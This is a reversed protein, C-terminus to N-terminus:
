PRVAVQIQNGMYGMSFDHVVEATFDDSESPGWLKIQLPQGNLRVSARYTAFPIGTIVLGEGTSRVTKVFTEGSTTNVLTVEAGSLDTFDAIANNLVFVGANGYPQEESSEVLTATFNRLTDANGPFTANDEAVLDINRQQGGDTSVRYANAAYEGPPLNDTSITYRGDADTIATQKISEGSNNLQDARYTQYVVEVHVGALPAGNTDVAIGSVSGADAHFACPSFMAATLALTKTGFM